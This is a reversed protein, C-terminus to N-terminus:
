KYKALRRFVSKVFAQRIVQNHPFNTAMNAILTTHGYVYTVNMSIFYVNYYFGSLYVNTQYM